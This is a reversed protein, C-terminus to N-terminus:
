FSFSYSASWVELSRRRPTQQGAPTDVFRSVRGIRTHMWELKFKRYADVAYSSGLALSQQDAAYSAEGAVRQLANIMAANPVTDPLRTATLRENWGISVDSSKTRGWSLYPTFRGMSHLVALYGGRSDYGIETGHQVIRAFEATVRWDPLLQHDVGLTYITNRLTPLVTLGPGPLEPVVQYYGLGPALEVYPYTTALGQGFNPRMRIRHVGGRLTTDSSRQTLVIGAAEVEVDVFLAGAPYDPPAGDRMWFRATTDMRGGYVDVSLDQDGHSWTRALSLGDFESSPALGYMEHPLRAMEHTSGVAMSESYLYLPIRMRGGRLLWADDPRWAVFAWPPRVDWDDDSRLSPALELQLTASWQPSLRLDAQAGFVTDRVLTGDEDIWRQYTFDRNSQAYGVTGFASWTLDQAMAGGLGCAALCACLLSRLRM